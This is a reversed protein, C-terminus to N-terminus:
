EAGYKVNRFLKETNKSDRVMLIQETLKSPSNLLRSFHILDTSTFVKASCTIESKIKSM